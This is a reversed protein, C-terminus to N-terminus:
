NMVPRQDVPVISEPAPPRYGLASHPRKTNYHRRWQEILIQAERLSYFIEGNLLEDRFRANFSEIYANEWPSGPEIYATKAGVARIWKRVADAIFYGPLGTTAGIGYFSGREGSLAAQFYPRFGYNQGVFSSESGANSAAITAGDPRMLYIADLGSQKAFDRLRINLPETPAGQATDVVFPDRALVFTLHSFRELEASVTSRYLSLRGEAKTLEQSRFYDFSLAYAGVAALITALLTLVLSNRTM